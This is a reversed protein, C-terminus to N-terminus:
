AVLLMVHPILCHTTPMYLHVAPLFYDFGGCVGRAQKTASEPCKQSRNKQQCEAAAAADLNASLLCATAAQDICFTGRTHWAHM